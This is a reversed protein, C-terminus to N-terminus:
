TSNSPYRQFFERRVYYRLENSRYDVILFVFLIIITYAIMVVAGDLERVDYGSFGALVRGLGHSLYVPLTLDGLVRIFRTLGLDINSVSIIAVLPVFVFWGAAISYSFPVIYHGVYLFYIYMLFTISSVAIACRVVNLQRREIFDGLCFFWFTLFPLTYAWLSLFLSDFHYSKPIHIHFVSGVIFVVAYATLILLFTAKRFFMSLTLFAPFAFYFWMETGLTWTLGVYGSFYTKSVEHFALPFLLINSVFEVISTTFGSGTLSSAAIFILSTLLALPAMRMYRDILFYMFPKSTLRSFRRYSRGNFLGSIVYFAIVASAGFRVTDDASFYLTHHYVVVLALGFRIISITGTHNLSSETRNNSVSNGTTM